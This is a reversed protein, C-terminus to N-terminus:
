DYFGASALTANMAEEYEGCRLSSKVKKRLRRYAQRYQLNKSAQRRQKFRNNKDGMSMIKFTKM